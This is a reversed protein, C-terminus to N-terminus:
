PSSDSDKRAPASHEGQVLDLVPASALEGPFEEVTGAPWEVRIKEVRRRDEVAFRAALELQSAFSPRGAPGRRHGVM